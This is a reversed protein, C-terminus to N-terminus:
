ADNQFTSAATQAGREEINLMANFLGSAHSSIVEVSLRCGPTLFINLENTRPYSQDYAYDPEIQMGYVLDSSHYYRVGIKATSGLADYAWNNVIATKDAPCTYILGTVPGSAAGSFNIVCLNIRNTERGVAPFYDTDIETQTSPITASSTKGATFQEIDKRSAM